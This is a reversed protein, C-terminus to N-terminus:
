GATRGTGLRGGAAPRGAQVPAPRGAFLDAFSLKGVTVCLITLVILAVVLRYHNLAVSGWKRAADTFPFNSLASVFMGFFALLYGLSAGNM